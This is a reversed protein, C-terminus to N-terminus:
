AAFNRIIEGNAAITTAAQRLVADAAAEGNTRYNQAYSNNYLNSNQNILTEIDVGKNRFAVQTYEMYDKMQQLCLSDEELAHSTKKLYIINQILKVVAMVICKFFLYLLKFVFFIIGMIEGGAGGGLASGFRFSQGISKFLDKIFSFFVAGMPVFFVMMETDGISVSYVAGIIAGIVMLVLKAMIIKKNKALLQVNERVLEECCNYCLIKNAYEGANVQYAESCDKCVSKGCKVCNGVADEEEHYYCANGSHRRNIYQSNDPPTFTPITKPPEFVPVETLNTIEQSSLEKVQQSHSMEQYQNDYQPYAKNMDSMEKGCQVCYMSGEANNAGCVSCYM